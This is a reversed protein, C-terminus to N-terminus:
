KKKKITMTDYPHAEFVAAAVPKIKFDPEKVVYGHKKGYRRLAQSLTLADPRKPATM